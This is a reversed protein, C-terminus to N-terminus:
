LYEFTKRLSTDRRGDGGDKGGVLQLYVIQHAEPRYKRHEKRLSPVSVLINEKKEKRICFVTETSTGKIWKYTEIAKVGLPLSTFRM